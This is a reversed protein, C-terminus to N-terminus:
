SVREWDGLQVVERRGKKVKVANQVWREAYAFGLTGDRSIKPSLKVGTLRQSSTTAEDERGQLVIEFEGSLERVSDRALNVLFGKGKAEAPVLHISGFEGVVHGGKLITADLLDMSERPYEDRYQM